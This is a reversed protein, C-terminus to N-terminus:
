KNLDTIDQRSTVDARTYCTVHDDGFVLLEFYFIVIFQFKFGRGKESSYDEFGFMLMKWHVGSLEVFKSSLSLVVIAAVFELVYGWWRSTVVLLDCTPIIWNCVVIRLV